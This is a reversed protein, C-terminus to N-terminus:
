RADTRRLLLGDAPRQGRHKPLAHPTPSLYEHVPLTAVGLAAADSGATGLLLRPTAAKEAIHRAPLRAAVGQLLADLLRDSLRGGFVIAEPDVVFEVALVVGVLHEVAADLWALLRPHRAAFLRDLDEPTRARAGAAQLAEYLRVLSFVLGVHPIEDGREADGQEPDGVLTFPLYGIEGANGSFGEFPRGDVILAGGLGSGFFLYFFTAIHRGAGYWREGVAAATANNELIVTLDLRERLQDALPVRHWGPFSKPNVVYGNGSDAVHMPGPIGIGVGCVQARALGQRAVLSESMRTMRDLAQRPTPLEFEVSERQRVVGALDVLVGTLHDRNFDLGIAFAGDPNLTLASSPAGRGGERRPAGEHVLGHELLDRVLNSVTQATLDTHRAVDARSLPGYLRIVEHVIRLNYQRTHVLNSGTLM